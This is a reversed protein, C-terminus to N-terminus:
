APKANAIRIGLVSLGAIVGVLTAALAGRVVLVYDTFLPTWWLAFLLPVAYLMLLTFGKWFPAAEASRCLAATVRGLPQLIVLLVVSSVAFSTVVAVVLSTLSSM